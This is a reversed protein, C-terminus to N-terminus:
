KAQKLYPEFFTALNALYAQPDMPLCLGHGAGKTIVLRKDPAACAAYNEESMACPVFDDTDGHFFIVPVRCHPMAALPSRADPDFRGYVRAGLRVFPYLLDAPLHMDRIVKKIIARPTSYGCDAIVGVVNPSLEEGAATLVTAAGMSIGTLIIKADTDIHEVVFDIWALCDRSENVGFSIVNGESAGAGRHDVILASRGQAFARYVGGALDAEATGRYGHFMLEIPAGKTHEFYKGRLTLGDFSKISVDLHEMVRIQKIWEVMRPRYQDYIEGRPTPYEDERLPRRPPSYFVRKYCIRAVVLVFVAVFAVIGLALLLWPLM